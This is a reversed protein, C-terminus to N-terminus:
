KCVLAPLRKIKQIEKATSSHTVRYIDRHWSCILGFSHTWALFNRWVFRPTLPLGRKKNILENVRPCSVGLKEALESQTMNLPKLFEELLMEGPHTPPAM